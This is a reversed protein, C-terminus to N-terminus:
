CRSYTKNKYKSGLVLFVFYKGFFTVPSLYYDYRYIRYDRLIPNCQCDRGHWMRAADMCEEQACPGRRASMSPVAPARVCQTHFGTGPPSVLFPPPPGLPVLGDWWLHKFHRLAHGALIHGIRVNVQKRKHSMAKM